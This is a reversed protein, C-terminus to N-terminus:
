SKYNDLHGAAYKHLISAMLTQYPLGEHAARQKIHELDISSLRLNVHKDKRLSNKAAAKAKVIQEKANNAIKYKGSEFAHLVEKEEDDLQINRIDSSKKLKKIKHM